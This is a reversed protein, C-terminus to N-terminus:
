LKNGKKKTKIIKTQQKKNTIGITMRIKTIRITIGIQQELKNEQETEKVRM